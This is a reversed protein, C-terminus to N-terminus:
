VSLSVARISEQIHLAAQSGVLQNIQEYIRGQIAAKGYFLGCMSIIVILMPSLSFITYYALSASLKFARNDQFGFWSDCILQWVARLVNKM